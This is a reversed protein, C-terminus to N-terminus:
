KQLFLKVQPDSSQFKTVISFPNYQGLFFEVFRCIQVLRQDKTYWLRTWIAQASSFTCSQQQQLKPQTCVLNDFAMKRSEQKPAKSWLERRESDGLNYCALTPLVTPEIQHLQHKQFVLWWCMPPLQASRQLDHFLGKAICTASRWIQDLLTTPLTSHQTEKYNFCCRWNRQVTM